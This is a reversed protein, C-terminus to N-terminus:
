KTIVEQIPPSALQSAKKFKDLNNSYLLPIIVIVLPLVIKSAPTKLSLSIVALLLPLFHLSYLFLEEGYFLHLLLQGAITAYITFKLVKYDKMLQVAIASIALIALWIANASLAILNNPAISSNLFSLMAWGNSTTKSTIKIEPAIVTHSLFNIITSKIRTLDPSFIYRSEENSGIFFTSYPFIIKQIGWLTTVIFLSVFCIKITQKIKHTALTAAIGAMWNTITVSFSFINIFVFYKQDLKKHNSIGAIILTCIISISGLAFSEPITLWFIGAASTLGLLTLLTSQILNNGIVRFLCYLCLAWMSAIFCIVIKVALPFGVGMNKIIFTPTYTQLSVLPHVSSRYHLVSNRDTMINFTRATDAEFYADSGDYLLINQHEEYLTFVSFFTVSAILLALIIEKSYISFFNIAKNFANTMPM